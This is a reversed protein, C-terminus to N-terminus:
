PQYAVVAATVAQGERMGGVIVYQGQHALLGRHDMTAVSLSPKKQWRGTDTLWAFVRSSPSSPRGDYGIGNYNYPNDSGGAFLIAPEGDLQTGTAAMRYLAPGPHHPMVVWDIRRPDGARVRGSLCRKAARFRRQKRTTEIRVGDCVVIQDDVIGGAHGFVPAGPWPTAQHWQGTETDYLQVLNVNGSDHWGSVLYIYRGAYALAVTDDVPVPMPALEVYSDQRVDLAHVLPVSVESHDEAVTYGGFIYVLGGLGVAAGALRGAGGPVDPLRRWKAAAPPLHWATSTTDRWTRGELLGMLSVMHFGDDLVVGAVANNSVAVPLGPVPAAATPLAVALLLALCSQRM